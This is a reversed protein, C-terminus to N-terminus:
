LEAVVGMMGSEGPINGLESHDVIALVSFPPMELEIPLELMISYSEPEEDDSSSAMMPWPSSSSAICVVGCIHRDVSAEVFM